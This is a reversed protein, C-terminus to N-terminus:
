CNTFNAIIKKVTEAFQVASEFQFNSNWIRVSILSIDFFHCDFNSIGTRQHLLWRFEDVIITVM